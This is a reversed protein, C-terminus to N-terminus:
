ELIRAQFIGHVAFGPSSYGHPRLSDVRGLLCASDSSEGEWSNLDHGGFHRLKPSTFPLTSHM